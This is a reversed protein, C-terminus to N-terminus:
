VASKTNQRRHAFMGEVGLIILAAWVICFGILQAGTFSERYVLVGLLFQLTPSIYQLIGMLTLPTLQVASSFCLLPVTTMLGAGIMLIDPITGLHLFAGQDINEVYLLYLLAPLSLLGTELTLGYLANLPATKKVLGYLSFTSALTLAIWPLRGYAFALYLVGLAALGIPIWQWLRLRERLFIVGLLISILPNIFYGLSTEIIYGSNVGWIYITWNVGILLAAIIYIPLISSQLANERFAKIQRTLVIFGILILCSWLIRHCILQLAPVKHLWKWYVPFLGWMVYASIGYWIGKNM